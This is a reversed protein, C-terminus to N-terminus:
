GSVGFAADCEARDRETAGIARDQVGPAIRYLWSGDAARELTITVGHDRALQAAERLAEPSPRRPSPM